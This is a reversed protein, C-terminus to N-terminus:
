EKETGGAEQEMCVAELRFVLVHMPFCLDFKQLPMEYHFSARQFDKEM